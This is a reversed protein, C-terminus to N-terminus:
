VKRSNLSIDSFTPVKIQLYNGLITHVTSYILLPAQSSHGANLYHEPFVPNVAVNM